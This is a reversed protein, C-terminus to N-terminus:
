KEVDIATHTDRSDNFETGIFEWHHKPCTLPTYAYYREEFEEGCVKCKYLKALFEGNTVTAEYELEGLCYNCLKAM